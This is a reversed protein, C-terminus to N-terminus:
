KREVKDRSKEIENTLKEVHAELQDIRGMAEISFIIAQDLLRNRDEATLSRKKHTSSTTIPLDSTRLMKAFEEINPTSFYREIYQELTGYTTYFDFKHPTVAESYTNNYIARSLVESTEPTEYARLRPLDLETAECFDDIVNEGEKYVRIDAVNKWRRWSNYTKKGWTKFWRAFTLPAINDKGSKKHYRGKLVKHVLGWQDWASKLWKVPDRVYLIVKVDLDDSYQSLDRFLHVMEPNNSIAENSWVVHDCGMKQSHNVITNYFVKTKEESHEQRLWAHNISDGTELTPWKGRAAMSGPYEELASQIASTGTKGLGIHATFRM